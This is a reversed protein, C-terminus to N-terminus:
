VQPFMIGERALHFTEVYHTADVSIAKDTIFYLGDYQGASDEVGLPGVQTKLNVKVQELLDIPTRMGTQVALAVSNIMSGRMNQYQARGWNPHVNVLDSPSFDVRGRTVSRKVDSDFDETEARRTVTSEVHVPQADLKQDVYHHRYVGIANVFGSNTLVKADHLLVDQGTPTQGMLMGLAPQATDNVDFYRLEGTMTVAAVLCSTQSVFGHMALYRVFKGIRDNAGLWVQSDNTSVGNYTLGCLEALEKIVSSSTARWGKNTSDIMYKPADYYCQLTYVYSNNAIARDVNYVRLSYKTDVNDKSIVVTVQTGERVRLQNNSVGILSYPDTFMIKATPLMVRTNSYVDIKFLPSVQLPFEKDGIFLGVSLQGDGGLQHM